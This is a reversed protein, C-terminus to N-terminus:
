HPVRNRSNNVPRIYSSNRKAKFFDWVLGAVRVPFSLGLLNHKGIEHDGPM